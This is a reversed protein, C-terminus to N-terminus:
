AAAEVQQPVTDSGTWALLLWRKATVRPAETGPPVYRALESGPRAAAALFADILADNIDPSTLGAGLLRCVIGIRM